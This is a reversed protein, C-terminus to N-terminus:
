HLITQQALSRALIPWGGNYGDYEKRDRSTEAGIIGAILGAVGVWGVTHWNRASRQATRIDTLLQERLADEGVAGLFAPVEMLTYGRYVGWSTTSYIPESLSMGWRWGRRSGWTFGSHVGGRHLTVSSGLYFRDRKYQQLAEIRGPAEGRRLLVSEGSAGDQNPPPQRDLPIALPMQDTTSQNADDSQPQTTDDATALGLILTMFLVTM